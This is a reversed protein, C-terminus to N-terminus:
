ALTFLSISQSSTRALGVVGLEKSYALSIIESIDSSGSASTIQGKSDLSLLLVSPSTPKWGSVGAVQSNSTIAGYTSNGASIVASSGLSPIRLTWTPAFATTFKTFATEIVKGTKVYGTLALSSDAAIWARNAKPASSRVVSAIAGSKSIKILVGDRTGALKKGALTEASSGFVSQSGDSQRTVANLQTKSTGISIVKGFAGSTNASVVLPKDELQGVLSIGSSNVSMSNILVPASQALTYTGLLEGLSSIKWLTILNMDGRLKTTPEVTVGDPNETQVTVTGSETPQLASSAGAVWINGLSDTAAALAVEDAGSDITKQWLQVGSIDMGTLLINSNSGDTNSVTIITKGSVVMTEADVTSIIKLKKVAVPKQVAVAPSTGAILLALLLAIRKM